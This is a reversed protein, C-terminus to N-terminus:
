ALTPAKYGLREMTQAVLSLVNEGEWGGISRAAMYGFPAACLLIVLVYNKLVRTAFLIGVGLIFLALAGSSKVAVTTVVVALLPLVIPLKFLTKLSGTWWLWLGALSAATMMMGVALGHQMYVM